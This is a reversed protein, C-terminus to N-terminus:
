TTSCIGPDLKQAIKSKKVKITRPKEEANTMSSTAAVTRTSEPRLYERGVMTVPRVSREKRM